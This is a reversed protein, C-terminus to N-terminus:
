YSLIIKAIFYDTEQFLFFNSNRYNKLIKKLTWLGLGAHENKTSYGKKLVSAIDVKKTTYNTIKILLHQERNEFLIQIEKNSENEVAELANNMMISLIRIFDILSIAPLTTLNEFQLTLEVNENECRRIFEILLGRIATNQIKKVQNYHYSKLPEKSSIMIEKLYTKAGFLDENEFYENFAILIGQLDHRYERALQFNEKEEEFSQILNDVYNKKQNNKKFLTLFSLLLTTVVFNLVLILLLTTFKGRLAVNIHILMLVLFLIFIGTGLKVHKKHIDNLANWVNYKLDLRNLIHTFLILLGIQILTILVLKHNYALNLLLYIRRPIHYTFFWVFTILTYELILAIAPLLWNKTYHQMMLYQLFFFILINLYLYHDTTVIGLFATLSLFVSLILCQRQSLLRKFFISWILSLYNISYGAILLDFKM